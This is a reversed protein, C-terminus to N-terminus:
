LNNEKKLLFRIDENNALKKIKVSAAWGTMKVEAAADKISLGDVCIRRLVHATSPDVEESVKKLVAEIDIDGSYGDTHFFNNDNSLSSQFDYEDDKDKTPISSFIVEERSRRHIQDHKKNCSSCIVIDINDSEDQKSLIFRGGCSCNGLDMDISVSADNSLKNHHKILSITKNRLHVHLFTSLRVKKLPDYSDIGEIAIKSVEQKIDEFTHGPIYVKSSISKILPDIKKLIKDYGQKTKKSIYITEEYMQINGEFMKNEM